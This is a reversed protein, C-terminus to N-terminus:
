GYLFPIPDLPIGRSPGGPYGGKRVEFHLHPGKSRGNNGIEAIQQGRKVQQGPYVKIQHPYMHAYLTYLGGGHHIVIVCGYGQSPGARVVVGDGAAFIPTGIRGGIDIGEHLRGWRPGMKSTIIMNAVPFGLKGNGLFDGFNYYDSFIQSQLVPTKEETEYTIPKSAMFLIPIEM